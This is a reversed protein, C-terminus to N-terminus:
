AENLTNQATNSITIHDLGAERIQETPNNHDIYRDPLTLPRVRLNDLLGTRALHHMVMSGFGGEAGEEVTVLVQHTRALEELLGTDLPKAFRADAVTTPLGRAALTDAARLADALRTGLSLIAIGGRKPNSS